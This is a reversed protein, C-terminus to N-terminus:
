TQKSAVHMANQREMPPRRERGNSAQTGGATGQQAEILLAKQQSLRPQRRMHESCTKVNELTIFEASSFDSRTLLDLKTHLSGTAETCLVLCSQKSPQIHAKQLLPDIQQVEELLFHRIIHQLAKDIASEINCIQEACYGPCGKFAPTRKPFCFQAPDKSGAIQASLTRSAFKV